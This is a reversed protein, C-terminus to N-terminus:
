LVIRIVASIKNSLEFNIVCQFNNTDTRRQSCPISMFRAKEGDQTRKTYGAGLSVGKLEATGEPADATYFSCYLGWLTVKHSPPQPWQRRM